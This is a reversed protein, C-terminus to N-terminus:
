AICTDKKGTRKCLEKLIRAEIENRPPAEGADLKRMTSIAPESDTLIALLHIERAEELAQAIGVLEGDFHTARTGLYSSGTSEKQLGVHSKRTYSEAAKDELGLGDSYCVTWGEEEREKRIRLEWVVKDTDKTGLEEIKTLARPSHVRRDFNWLIKRERNEGM